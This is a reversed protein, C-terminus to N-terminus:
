SLRGTTVLIPQELKLSINPQATSNFFVFKPSGNINITVKLKGSGCVEVQQLYFNGTSTYTHTGVASAAVAADTDYDTIETGPTADTIKVNLSGDSNIALFDCGDGIKVSDQSHSLDRIGLDTSTATVTWSGGQHATVSDSANSLNRIDLDTASVTVSSGSVDVKDTAFALDRIDLNTASVVSNISGDNNVALFDTGDGIKVSDQSHSLDRIDLDTASITSNVDISGNANVKLKQSTITADVVKIEVDGASETRIPLSSSFDAM